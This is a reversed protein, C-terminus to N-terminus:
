LCVQFSVNIDFAEATEASGLWLSLAMAGAVGVYFSSVSFALLKTQFPRFRYNQPLIWIVFLWGLDGIPGRVLNKAAMALVLVFLLCFIYRHMADANPGTVAFGM